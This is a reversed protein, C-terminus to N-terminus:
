NRRLCIITSGDSRFGPLILRKRKRASKSNPHNLNWIRRNRQMSTASLKPKMLFITMGDAERFCIQSTDEMKESFKGFRDQKGLLVQEM